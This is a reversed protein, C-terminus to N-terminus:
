PLAGAALDFKPAFSNGSISGASSLNRIVNVTGGSSNAIILDSKGDGDMDGLSVRWPDIGAPLDVRPAFSTAGISGAASTNKFVSVSASSRNAVILEPKGDEDLDGISSGSPNGGTPFDIRASFSNVDITGIVSTNKFVSVTNSTYNTVILDPKGDSDLDGISASFPDTGTIFDTKPSFSLSTISGPTCLNKFVSVKGDDNPPRNPIIIEPRGDGDIDGIIPLAPNPVPFDVKAAFSSTTISGVASTNRFISISSSTPNTTVIDLKGDGDLDGLALWGGYDQGMFGTTFDVGPAFSSASISGSVSINRFVSVTSNGSNTIVFDPKGDGDMDAIAADYSKFGFPLDVKPAFTNSDIVRNSSYTVKFPTGSYGTRGNVTVTIPQFSAGAPVVVTLQTATAATVTAKTAGFWVINSSPTSNFNEGTITVSMGISGSAPTFSTIRPVTNSVPVQETYLQMVEGATLARNWIGVDDIVGSFCYYNSLPDLGGLLTKFSATSYTSTLNIGTLLRVQVGNVYISYTNQLREYVAVVHYFQNRNYGLGSNLEFITNGDNVDKRFTVDGNVLYIMYPDHASQGDGRWILIKENGAMDTVDRSFWLSLSISGTIDLDGQDQLLITQNGNFRYALNANGFRDPTLTAGNVLGNNGRGSEDKAD